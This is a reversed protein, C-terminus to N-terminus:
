SLSVTQILLMLLLSFLVNWRSVEYTFIVPNSDENDIDCKLVAGSECGVVVMNSTSFIKSLESRLSEGSVAMCTVGVVGTGRFGARRYLTFNQRLSQTM